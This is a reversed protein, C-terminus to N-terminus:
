QGARQGHSVPNQPSEHRPPPPATSERTVLVTPFPAPVPPVNGQALQVLHQVAVEGLHALAQRVTTLAPRSAAAVPLDDFGVVPLDGPVALGLDQAAHITGLAMADGAAFIATPPQDLALLRRTADAGSAQQYDGHEIYTERVALGRARLSDRYGRLRQAAADRESQM